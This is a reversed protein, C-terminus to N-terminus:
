VNDNVKEQSGLLNIVDADEFKIWFWDLGGNGYLHDVANDVRVINADNLKYTVGSVPVGDHNLSRTRSTYDGAGTWVALFARLVADNTDLNSEFRGGILIDDGDGGNLIDAGNGGVLLNRGTGSATLTDNGDLGILIDNGGAGRLTNDSNDGRLLDDGQSGTVDRINAIGAAVLPQGDSRLASHNFLDVTVGGALASFDLTNIGDGGDIQGSLRGNALFVFTDDSTVGGKLNEIATFGTVSGVQGADLSTITVTGRAILTDLGDRGNILVPTSATAASSVFFTDADSGGSFLMGSMGSAVIYVDEGDEYLTSPAERTITVSGDSDNGVFYSHAATGQDTVSLPGFPANHGAGDIGLVTLEGDINDLRSADNGIVVAPAGRVMVTNDNGAATSKVLVNVAGSGGSLFVNEGFQSYKITATSFQQAGNPLTLWGGRTFTDASVTYTSNFLTSAVDSIELVDSGDGNVTLTGRLGTLDGTMGANFPNGVFVVDTQGVLVLDRGDGTNLTTDAKTSLVTFNDDGSGSNITLSRLKAHSLDLAGQPTLGSVADRTITANHRATDLDDVFTVATPGGSTTPVLNGFSGALASNTTLTMNGLIGALTHNNGVNFAEVESTTLTIGAPLAEVRVTDTGGDALLVIQKVSSPVDMAAIKTTGASQVLQLHGNDPRIHLQYTDNRVGGDDGHAVLTTSNLLTISPM